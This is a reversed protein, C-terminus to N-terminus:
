ADKSSEGIVDVVSERQRRQKARNLCDAGVLVSNRGIFQEIWLRDQCCKWPRTGGLGTNLHIFQDVIVDMGAAGWLLTQRFLTHREQSQM